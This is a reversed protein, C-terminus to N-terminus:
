LKEFYRKRKFERKDSSTRYANYEEEKVEIFTNLLDSPLVRKVFDSNKALNIAEELNTPLKDYKDKDLIDRHVNAAPSLKLGKEIGELGARLILGYVLYPNSSPDPSRLEMSTHGDKSFPIRILQSRNANSWSVYKPAGFCGFREYSNVTPNLFLTIERIRELVGSIFSEAEKCHGVEQTLFINDGGKTLKLNVHMSSGSFDVLPKPMFSAYLGNRAAVAKVVLKFTMMDDGALLVESERFDIEHQGPGLEHHSFVPKLGMEELTLDIERRLDEGKDMPAIDLYGANDHPTLTPTGNEDQKFLYFECEGGINCSYGADRLLKDSNALFKRTDGEFFDGDIKKINCFLRMVSGRQPRWPLITLSSPDPYLFLDGDEVNMLGKVASANFSVGHEFARPLEEALLSINKMNGFVDCFSLKVFKVNNEKAYEIVEEVTYSM